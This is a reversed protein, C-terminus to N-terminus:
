KGNIISTLNFVHWLADIKAVLRGPLVNRSYSTNSFRQADGYRANGGLLTEKKALSNIQHMGSLQTPTSNM